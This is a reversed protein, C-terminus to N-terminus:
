IEKVPLNDLLKVVEEFKFDVDLVGYLSGNKDKLPLATTMILEGTYESFFLDSQYIEGKTLVNKFWEKSNFDKKSLRRFKGKEGRQTQLPVIRHGEMNTVAM